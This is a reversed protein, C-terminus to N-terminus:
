SDNDSGGKTIEEILLATEPKFGTIKRFREQAGGKGPIRKGTWTFHFDDKFMTYIESDSFDRYNQDLCWAKFSPLLAELSSNLLLDVAKFDKSVLYEVYQLTPSNLWMQNMQLLVAGKSPSLKAIVDHQEVYHDILLSLFAGLVEPERMKKEFEIDRLFVKPFEFRVLRKQLASSKDRSKPEKNLAEVFLANTQVRTTSSEYLLRIFGPEGAILTKELGSDKIYDMRGDYIINLLRNNLEVCVPAQEAMQQRTINSVNEAGFLDMLMTLLVSKGNRGDGLLLVYKVASWGPALATAFHSLLSHAEDDSDLWNSITKFVFEKMVPDDNLVPRIFNPIFEGNPEVLTGTEDLIRLGQDTRIFIGTTRSQDDKAYQKLMFDFSSLESDTAFLINSKKNGLIRKDHKPLPKWVREGEPPAPTIEETMWHAPIYTTTHHHVLELEQALNKAAEALAAKTKLEM